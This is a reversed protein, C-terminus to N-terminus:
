NIRGNWLAQCYHKKSNDTTVIVMSNGTVKEKSPNVHNARLPALLKNWCDTTVDWVDDLVILFRKSKMNEELDQQLMNFSSTEKQKKKSVCELIERTVKHLDFKDSVHIWIKIASKGIESDKYIQQALTTKGIGGNGVIPLVIMGDSRNSMILNKISEIETARGYVIPELVYSTTTANTARATSRHSLNSAEPSKLGNIKLGKSVDGRADRLKGAIQKITASFQRKNDLLTHNEERKRKWGTVTFWRNISFFSSTPTSTVDESNGAFPLMCYHYLKTYQLDDNAGHSVLRPHNFSFM